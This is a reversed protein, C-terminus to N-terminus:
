LWSLRHRLACQNSNSNSVSTIVACASRRHVQRAGLQPTLRRRSRDGGAPVDPRAVADPGDDVPFRREAWTANITDANPEDDKMAEAITIAPSAPWCGRANEPPLERDAVTHVVELVQRTAAEIKPLEDDM